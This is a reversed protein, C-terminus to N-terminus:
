ELVAPSIRGLAVLDELPELVSCTGFSTFLARVASAADGSLEAAAAAARAGDRMSLVAAAEADDAGQLAAHVALLVNLFGHHEFGTATDTHRLARHMGATCKLARGRRAAAGLAAALEAESPFADARTGGTRLKALQATGSLADLSRRPDTGRPLEVFGATRAPLHEELAAAARATNAATQADDDGRHAAVEVAVAEIAPRARAAELAPGVGDPGDPVTVSVRLAAGPRRALARGLEPIRGAPVIFPGTMPSQPGARYRLHAAVAADMPADGPPFLAADDLLAAYM